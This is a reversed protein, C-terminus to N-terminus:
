ETPYGAADPGAVVRRPESSVSEVWWLDALDFYCDYDTRILYEGTKEDYDEVEVGLEELDRRFEMRDGDFSSIFVAANRPGPVIKYDPRYEGIWRISRDGLLRLVSSVPLSLLFSRPSLTDYYEFEGEDWEFRGVFERYPMEDITQVICIMLSNGYGEAEIDKLKMLFLEGVEWPLIDGFPLPIVFPENDSYDDFIYEPLPDDDFLYDGEYYWHEIIIVEPYVGWPHRPRIPPPLYGGGHNPPGPPTVEGPEDPTDPPRVKKPPRIIINPGGGSPEERRKERVEVPNRQHIRRDGERTGTDGAKREEESIKRERETGRVTEKDQEGSDRREKAQVPKPDPVPVPKEVPKQAEREADRTKAAEKPAEEKKAPTEKNKEKEQGAQKARKEVQGPGAALDDSSAACFLIAAAAILTGHRIFRHFGAARKAAEPSKRLSSSASM